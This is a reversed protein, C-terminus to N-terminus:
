TIQAVFYFCMHVDTTFMKLSLALFNNFFPTINEILSILKASGKLWIYLSSVKTEM